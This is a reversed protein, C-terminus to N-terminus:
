RRAQGEALDQVGGDGAMTRGPRHEWEIRQFAFEVEEILGCTAAGHGDGEATVLRHATVVAATLKVAFAIEEGGDGNRHPFEMVVSRLEEATCSAHLFQPTAADVPRRILLPQHTRRSGRAGAATDRPSAIRQDFWTAMLKGRHAESACSGKFRGQRTGEVSLYFTRM